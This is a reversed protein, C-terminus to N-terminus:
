ILPAPVFIIESQALV